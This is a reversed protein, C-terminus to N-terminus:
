KSTENTKIDKSETSPTQYSTFTGHPKELFPMLLLLKDRLIKLVNPKCIFIIFIAIGEMTIILSAISAVSKIWQLNLNQIAFILSIGDPIRTMGMIFFFIFYLYMGKKELASACHSESSNMKKMHKKNQNVLYSASIFMLGNLINLILLISIYTYNFISDYISLYKETIADPLNRGIVFILSIGWAYISYYLLIMREKQKSLKHCESIRFIKWIIYCMVNIWFYSSIFGFFAPVNITYSSFTNKVLQFYDIVESAHHIIDSAIKSCLCKGFLNFLNPTTIYTIFTILLLVLSIISIAINVNKISSENDNDVDNDFNDNNHYFPNEITFIVPSVIDSTKIWSICYNELNFTSFSDNSLSILLTENIYINYKDSYTIFFCNDCETETYILTFNLIDNKFSSTNTLSDKNLDNLIDDLICFGDDDKLYGLPCCKKLCKNLLCQRLIFTFDSSCIEDNSLNIIGNNTTDNHLETSTWLKCSHRGDSESFVKTLIITLIFLSLQKNM